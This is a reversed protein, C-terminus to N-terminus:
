RSIYDFADVAANFNEENTAIILFIWDENSWAYWKHGDKKTGRAVWKGNISGSFQTSFSDDFFPVVQKEFFQDARKKDPAKIVQYKLLDSYTSEYGIFPKALKLEQLQLDHGKIEEPFIEGFVADQGPPDFNTNLSSGCSFFLLCITLSLFYKKKM